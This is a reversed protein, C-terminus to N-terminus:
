RNISSISPVNYENCIGDALLRERIEWSFMSPRRRKYINIAAIVEPLSKKPKSGGIKGPNISGTERWKSLIKSVCGHSVRLEKSIRCPKVGSIAMEVIKRRLTAPLPRGNAYIGGLQNTATRTESSSWPKEQEKCKSQVWTTPTSSDPQYQREYEEVK